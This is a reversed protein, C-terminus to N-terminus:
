PKALKTMAARAVKTLRDRMDAADWAKTGGGMFRVEIYLDRDLLALNSEIRQNEASVRVAPMLPPRVVSLVRVERDAPLPFRRLWETAARAENSGDTALLVRM